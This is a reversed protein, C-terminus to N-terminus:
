MVIEDRQGDNQEIQHIESLEPKRGSSNASGFLRLPTMTEPAIVLDPSPFSFEFEEINRINEAKNEASNFWKRRPKAKAKDEKQKQESDENNQKEKSDSAYKKSESPYTNCKRLSEGNKNRRDVTTKSRLLLNKFGSPMCGDFNTVRPAQSMPSNPQKNHPFYAHFPSLPQQMMHNITPKNARDFSSRVSETGTTGTSANKKVAAGTFSPWASSTTGYAGISKNRRMKDPPLEEFM